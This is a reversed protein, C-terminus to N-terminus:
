HTTNEGIVQHFSLPAEAACISTQATHNHFITKDREGQVIFHFSGKKRPNCPDLWASRFFMKKRGSFQRKPVARTFSMSLGPKAIFFDPESESLTNKGMGRTLDALDV